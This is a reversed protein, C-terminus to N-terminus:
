FTRFYPIWLRFQQSVGIVFQYSHYMGAYYLGSKVLDEVRIPHDIQWNEFSLQRRAVVAFEPHKPIDHFIGLMQYTLQHSGQSSEPTSTSVAPTGQPITSNSEPTMIMNQSTGENGRMTSSPTNSLESPISYIQSNINTHHRREAHQNIDYGHQQVQDRTSSSQNYLTAQQNQSTNLGSSSFSRQSPDRSHTMDSTTTNSTERPFSDVEDYDHYSNRSSMDLDALSEDAMSNGVTQAHSSYDCPEASSTEASSGFQLSSINSAVNSSAVNNSSQVLVIPCHPDLEMHVEDIDDSQQWNEKEASCFYCKVRDNVGDGIYVFGASALLSPSKVASTPYGSFSALRMTERQYHRWPIGHVQLMNVKLDISEKCPFFGLPNIFIRKRNSLKTKLNKFAFDSTSTDDSVKVIEELGHVGLVALGNNILVKLRTIEDDKGQAVHTEVNRVLTRVPSTKKLNCEPSSTELGNVAITHSSDLKETDESKSPRCLPLCLLHEGRDCRTHPTKIEENLRAEGNKDKNELVCCFINLVEYQDKWLCSSLNHHGIHFREKKDEILIHIHNCINDVGERKMQCRHIEKRRLYEQRVNRTKFERKQFMNVNRCKSLDFELDKLVDFDEQSQVTLVLEVSGLCVYTVIRYYHSMDLVPESDKIKSKIETKCTKDTHSHLSTETVNNVTFSSNLWHSWSEYCIKQGCEETKASVSSDTRNNKTMGTLVECASSRHGHFIIARILDFLTSEQKIEEGETQYLTPEPFFSNDDPTKNSPKEKIQRRAIEIFRELCNKVTQWTHLGISKLLFDLVSCLDNKGIKYLLLFIDLPQATEHPVSKCRNNGYHISKGYRFHCIYGSSVFELAKEM